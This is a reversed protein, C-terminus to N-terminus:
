GTDVGFMFGRESEKLAVMREIKSSHVKRRFLQQNKTSCLLETLEDM